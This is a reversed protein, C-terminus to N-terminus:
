WAVGRRRRAQVHTATVTALRRATVYTAGLRSIDDDDARSDDYSVFDFELRPQLRLKGGCSPCLELKAAKNAVAGTYGCDRCAGERM